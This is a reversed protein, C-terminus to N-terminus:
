ETNLVPYLSDKEHKVNNKGDQEMEEGDSDYEHHELRSKVWARLAEIIRINSVWVENAKIAGEDMEGSPPSLTGGLAPDLNSSSFDTTRGPQPKPASGADSLQSSTIVNKPTSAGESATEMADDPKERKTPAARQLRGGSFRRRQDRDFQSGLTSTPAMSSPMYGQSTSPCPLTPYMAGSTPPSMNNLHMLPPSNGSTNSVASSPPTLAPTGSHNSQPTAVSMSHSSPLHLGPPSNSNRYGMGGPVYHAGPQGVGAAAIENANEYITSQMTAFLQDLNILDNKTRLNDMPPLAYQSPGYGADGGGANIPQSHAIMPPALFPLQYNQLAAMRNEVQTYSRPDFEGRQTDPFLSRIIDLGNKMSEISAQSAVDGGHNAYSVNGYAYASQPPAPGYYGTSGNGSHGQHTYNMPMNGHMQQQHDPFYGAATSALAQLDTVMQKSQGGNSYANPHSNQPNGGGNSPRSGPAGMIVSDDAHTKVHKKLDQPRKFAKGCFECRHPNSWPSTVTAGPANYTSIIRAKGGSTVNACTNRHKM